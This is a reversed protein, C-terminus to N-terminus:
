FLFTTKVVGGYASNSGNGAPNTITFFAPTLSINDTVQFKYWIEWAFTSEDTGLFGDNGTVFTPQGVATGFTNGALLANNWQLGVYWSQSTASANKQNAEIGWIQAAQKASYANTGWGASISPIWGSTEPKWWGSIAVSNVDFQTLGAFPNTAKPTGLPIYGLGSTGDYSGGSQSYAYAATINWNNGTYALQVTGTGGSYDNAIGGPDNGAAGVGPTVGLAPNASSYSSRGNAAVYNASVSFGDQNWWIGGGAGLNLSYAGPAGASTFFDLITDALYQSPWVALMDDQRVRPGAMVTINSGIPFQYFIRDVSWISGAASQDFAVEAGLAPYPVGSWISDAFNGARLRTRLLDKGTFSTNLDLKVDYNFSVAEGSAVQGDILDKLLKRAAAKVAPNNQQLPSLSGYEAVSLDLPNNFTGSNTFGGAAPNAYV